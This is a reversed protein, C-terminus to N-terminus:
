RCTFLVGLYGKYVGPRCRVRSRARRGLQIGAQNLGALMTKYPTLSPVFFSEGPACRSWPFEEPPVKSPQSM